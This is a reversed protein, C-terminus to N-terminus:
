PLLDISLLDSFGEATPHDCVLFVQESPKGKSCDFVKEIQLNGTESLLYEDALSTEAGADLTIKEPFGSFECLISVLKGESEVCADASDIKLTDNNFFIELAELITSKGIDNRGILTTLGSFEVRTRARYSRFNEVELAILKM